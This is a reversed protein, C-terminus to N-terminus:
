LDSDESPIDLITKKNESFKVPAALVIIGAMHEPTWLNLERHSGMTKASMVGGDKGEIMNKALRGITMNKLTELNLSKGFEALKLGESAMAQIMRKTLGATGRLARSKPYGADIMADKITKGESIGKAFQEEKSLEGVKAITSM